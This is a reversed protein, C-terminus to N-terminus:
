NEPFDEKRSRRLPKGNPSPPDNCTDYDQIFHRIVRVTPNDIVETYKKRMEDIVAEWMEM